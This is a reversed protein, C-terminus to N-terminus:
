AAVLEYKACAEPTAVDAVRALLAPMPPGGVGQDHGGVVVEVSKPQQAVVGQGCPGEM